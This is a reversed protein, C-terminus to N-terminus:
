DGLKSAIYWNILTYFNLFYGRIRQYEEKWSTSGSLYFSTSTVTWSWSLDFEIGRRSWKSQSFDAETSSSLDAPISLGVCPSRLHGMFALYPPWRPFLGELGWWSSSKLRRLKESGSWVAWSSGFELGKSVIPHYVNTTHKNQGWRCCASTGPGPVSGIGCCCCCWIRLQQAM